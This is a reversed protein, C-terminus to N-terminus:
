VTTSDWFGALHPDNINIVRTGILGGTFNAEKVTFTSGSVGSVYAVHKERAGTNKDKYWFIAVQGKHPVNTNVTIEAMRPLSVLHSVYTYCNLSTWYKWADGAKLRKALFRLSFEPDLAQERTIHWTDYHIQVLGAALGGDNDGKPDPNLNSESFAVNFLTTSSM